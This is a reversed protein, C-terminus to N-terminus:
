TVPSSTTGSAWSPPSVSSGIEQYRVQVVLEPRCWVRPERKIKTEEWFPSVLTQLKALRPTLTDLFRETFGTGVKGYYVFRTGSYLDTSEGGDEYAGVLLAGVKNERKGEGLTFGGVVFEDQKLIKIKLWDPSRKGEQYTSARRKAVIGELKLKEAGAYLVKGFQPHSSVCKISTRDLGALVETLHGKREDLPLHRLDEGRRTLIDFVHYEVPFISRRAEITFEDNLHSRLSLRQFDPLSDDGLSVVEGDLICMEVTSLGEWIEPFKHATEKGSRSFLEVSSPHPPESGDIRAITREGDLKPEFVWEESDFPEDLSKCLMPKISEGVIGEL